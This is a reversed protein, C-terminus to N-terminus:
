NRVAKSRLERPIRSTTYTEIPQLQDHDLRITFIYVADHINM